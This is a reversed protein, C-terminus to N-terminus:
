EPEEDSWRGELDKPVRIRMHVDQEVRSGAINSVKMIKGSNAEVAFTCSRLWVIDLRRQQYLLSRPLDARKRPVSCPRGCSEM